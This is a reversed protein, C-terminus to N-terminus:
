DIVPDIWVGPSVWVFPYWGVYRTDGIHNGTLPLEEQTAVPGLLRVNILTGDPMHAVSHKVPEARLVRVEPTPAPTAPPSFAPIAPPLSVIDDKQRSLLAAAIVAASILLAIVALWGFARRRVKPRIYPPQTVSRYRRRLNDPLVTEFRDSHKNM